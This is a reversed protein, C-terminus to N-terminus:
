HVFPYIEDAIWYNEFLIALLAGVVWLAWRQRNWAAGSTTNQILIEALYAASYCLNALLALVTMIGLSELTIAPRFHPWTRTVWLLVVGLLLLNYLLRRPEWFRAADALGKGASGAPSMGASGAEVPGTAKGTEASAARASGLWPQSDRKDM